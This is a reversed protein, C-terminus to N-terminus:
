QSHREVMAYANHTHISEHSDAELRYWTIRPDRDLVGAVERAMDEVFRPNEYARETVYREDERKLVPFLPVSACGEVMEVIEEIWVLDNMRVRATVLCRQNHAGHKSIEKSCPCLIQVPVQVEITVDYGNKDLSAEYSCAYEMLGKHSTVPADKMIFYPFRMELHAEEAELRERTKRLIKEVEHVDLVREEESLIELFRSMHTGRFQHPLNVYLNVSAVTHQKGRERDRVQIPYRIDKVGVKDLPIRRIDDERQVDKM